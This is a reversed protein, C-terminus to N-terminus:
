KDKLGLMLSTSYPTVPFVFVVEFVRGTSLQTIRALTNVTTGKPLALRHTGRAKVQDAGAEDGSVAQLRGRVTTTNGSETYSGKGDSLHAVTAIAFTEPMASEDLEILDAIDSASFLEASM